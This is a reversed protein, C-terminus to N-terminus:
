GVGIMMKKGGSSVLRYCIKFNERAVANLGSLYQIEILQEQIGRNTM